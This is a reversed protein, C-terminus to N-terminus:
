FVFFKEIYDLWFEFFFRFGKGQMSEVRFQGGQFEVLEKVISLGLGIGEYIKDVVLVCVFIEFIKDQQEEFIGVGIDWVEFLLKVCGLQQECNVVWFEVEGWEIFKIVNGVLNYMIQNFWLVDGILMQFVDVDINLEFKLEKECVKYRLVSMLSCLFEGLSFFKCVIVVKDNQIIFMDLIDSIIGFLLDLFWKIVDVYEFQEINFLIEIFLNSMGLIVNM